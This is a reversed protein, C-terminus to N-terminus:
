GLWQAEENKAAERYDSIATEQGVLLMIYDVILEKRCRNTYCLEYIRNVERFVEERDIM